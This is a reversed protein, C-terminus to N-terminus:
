QIKDLSFPYDYYDLIYYARTQYDYALVAFGLADSDGRVIFSSGSFVGLLEHNVKFTFWTNGDEDPEIKTVVGIRIGFPSINKIGYRMPTIDYQVKTDFSYINMDPLIDQEYENLGLEIMGDQAFGSIVLSDKNFVKINFIKSEDDRLQYLGGYSLKQKPIEVIAPETKSVSGTPYGDDDVGILYSINMGRHPTVDYTGGYSYLNEVADFQNHKHKNMYEYVSASVLEEVSDFGAVEEESFVKVIFSDYVMSAGSVDVNIKSCNSDVWAIHWNPNEKVVFDFKDPTNVIIEQATSCDLKYNESLSCVVVRYSTSLKPLWFHAITKKQNRFHVENKSLQIEYVESIPSILDETCFIAYCDRNSGDHTIQVSANGGRFQIISIKYTPSDSIASSLDVLFDKRLCASDILMFAILILVRLKM